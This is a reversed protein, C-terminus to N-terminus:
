VPPQRAKHALHLAAVHKKLRSGIVPFDSSSQLLRRNGAPSEIDAASKALSWALSVITHDKLGVPSRDPWYYVPWMWFIKAQSSFEDAVRSITQTYLQTAIVDASESLQGIVNEKLWEKAETETHESVSYVFYPGDERSKSAPRLLGGDRSWDHTTVCTFQAGEYIFGPVEAPCTQLLESDM